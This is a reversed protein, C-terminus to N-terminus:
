CAPYAVIVCTFEHLFRVCVEVDLGPGLTGGEELMPRVFPAFQPDSLARQPQAVALLCDFVTAELQTHFDREAPAASMMGSSSHVASTAAAAEEDTHTPCALSV